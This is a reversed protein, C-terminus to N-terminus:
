VIIMCLHVHVYGDIKNSHFRLIKYTKNIHVMSINKCSNEGAYQQVYVCICLFIEAYMYMHTYSKNQEKMEQWSLAVGNYM